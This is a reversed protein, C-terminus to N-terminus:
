TDGQYQRPLTFAFCSGKDGPGPEVWIEGGHAEITLKCFTLGLGFGRRRSHENDSVQAFRDFIRQRQDPPIGPGQDTVSVVIHGAEVDAALIIQSGDPSYKLANDLLNTLVRDLKETDVLVLPLDDPIAVEITVGRSSAVLSQRRANEELMSGLHINTLVMPMEGTTFKAVDLLSDVLRQMRECASSALDLLERNEQYVDEPMVMELMNLSGYIVGLPNRLDHVILDSTEQRLRQLELLQQKEDKLQNVQQVLQREGQESATRIDDANRLRSSLTAMISMGIAPSSSLWAHFSERTIRLLRMDDLAINTASRPQGELLAMEGLIEGPGRYGIITPSAINGKLVVVRGSQILYMADGADGEWCIVEGPQCRRETMLRSLQHRDITALLRMLPTDPAPIYEPASGAHLALLREFDQPSLSEPSM